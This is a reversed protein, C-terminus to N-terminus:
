AQAKHDDGVKREQRDRVHLQHYNRVNIAGDKAFFPAIGAGPKARWFATYSAKVKAAARAYFM